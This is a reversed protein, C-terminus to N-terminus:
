SKLHRSCMKNISKIAQNMNIIGVPNASHVLIEKPPNYGHLFVQAEMWKLVEYGTKKGEGLDHDLSLIDIHGEQTCLLAILSEATRVTIWIEDPADRIDDLFIKLKRM